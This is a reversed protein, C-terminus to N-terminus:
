NEKEKAKGNENAASGDTGLDAMVALIIWLVGTGHVGGCENVCYAYAVTTWPMFLFGMFPWFSTEYARNIYDQLYLIFVVLRPSLFLGVSLLCCGM